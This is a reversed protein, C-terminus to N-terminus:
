FFRGERSLLMAGIDDPPAIAPLPRATMEIGRAEYKDILGPDLGVHRRDPAPPRLALAQEARNVAGPWKRGDGISWDTSPAPSDM